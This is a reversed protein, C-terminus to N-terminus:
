NERLVQAPDIRTAKRAPLWSAAAAAAILALAALGLLLPDGSRVQFLLSALARTLFTAAVLGIVAGTGVLKLSHGLVMKRVQAAQAGVVMRVGIETRRGEVRHAVVGYLGVLGLLLATIAATGLLFLTFTSRVMTRALEDALSGQVTLPIGPDMRRIADRLAAVLDLERGPNTAILLPVTRNLWGEGDMSGVPLYVAATPPQDPGEGRVPAALGVVRFWPPGTQPAPHVGGRLPDADPWLRAAANSTVVAVTPGSYDSRTFSRGTELRMNLVSWYGPSVFVVPVCPPFQDAELLSGQVYLGNCGGQHFPSPGIAAHRVGPLTQLNDLLEREFTRVSEATPYFPEPLSIEAVLVGAPDFGLDVTRLHHFTQLLLASGSLLVLALAVQLVVFGGGVAAQSRAEGVFRAAPAAPTGRGFRLFPYLGLAATVALCLAATLAMTTTGVALQDLRPIVSPALATFLRLGAWALALGLAGATLAICLSESVFHGILSVGTAGLAKRIAVERARGEARVLFLTAVNAVAVLFVISVAGVVVWLPREVEGVVEERVPRVVTQLRYQDLLISYFSGLEPLRATLRALDASAAIGDVGHRLRALVRIRFADDARVGAPVAYPLWVDIKRRPLDAGPAVVGLVERSVGDLAVTQGIIAPDAGYRRVWLRHSILIGSQDRLAADADTFLRGLEPHAGLVDLLGTTARVGDVREAERDGSLTYLEPNWYGGFAEFSRNEREFFAFAFRALPNTAQDQITHSVRVVRDAEPYPLPRILVVNVVTAIAATAGLGLALTFVSAATFGPVRLLSRVARKLENGMGVLAATTAARRPVRRTVGDAHRAWRRVAWADRVIGALLGASSRGRERAATLEGNWERLWESRRSQPVLVAVARLLWSSRGRPSSYRDAM